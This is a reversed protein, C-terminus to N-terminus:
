IAYNRILQKMFWHFQQAYMILLVIAKICKFFLM